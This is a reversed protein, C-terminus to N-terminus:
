SVQKSCRTSDAKKPSSSRAEPSKDIAAGRRGRRPKPSSISIEPSKDAAGRRTKRKPSSSNAESSKDATAGRRGRRPKPSSSNAELSTDAARRRTQQKSSSSRAEPSKEDAAAGRRGRRPKPSSSSVEPSKNAARRRTQQKPKPSISAVDAPSNDAAARRTRKVPSAVESTRAKRTRRQPKVAPSPEEEKEAVAKSRGKRTTKPPPSPSKTEEERTSSKQSTGRANKKKIESEEKKAPRRRNYRTPLEQAESHDESDSSHTQVSRDEQNVTVDESTAKQGKRGRTTKRVPSGRTARTRLPDAEEENSKSIPEEAAKKRGRTARKPAEEESPLSKDKPNSRTSRKSPSADQTKGRAKSTTAEQKAEPTKPAPSKMSQARSSREPSMNELNEKSASTNGEEDDSGCLIVNPELSRRKLSPSPQSGLTGLSLKRNGSPKELEELKKLFLRRKDSSLFKAEPSAFLARLDGEQLMQVSVRPSKLLEKVGILNDYSSKPSKQVHRTSKKHSSRQEPSSLSRRHHDIQGISHRKRRSVDGFGKTSTTLSMRQAPRSRLSKGSENLLPSVLVQLPINPTKVSDFDFFSSNQLGSLSERLSKSLSRGMSLPTVGNAPSNAPTKSSDTVLEDLSVDFSSIRSKTVPTDPSSVLSFKRRLKGPSSLHRSEMLHISSNRSPSAIHKASGRLSRSPTPLTPRGKSSSSPSPIKVPSHSSSRTLNSTPGPTSPTKSPIDPMKSVPIMSSRGRRAPTDDTKKPSSDRRNTSNSPTRSRSRSSSAKPIREQQPTASSSRGRKSAPSKSPSPSQNRSPTEVKNPTKLSGTSSSRKPTKSPRGRKGSSSPTKSPSKRRGKTSDVSLFRVRDFALTKLPSQSSSRALPTKSPRGRKASSAPTKSPSRSSGRRKTSSSSPTKSPRGRGKVSSAPTKVPSHSESRGKKLTSSPTSSSNNRKASSAPTKTPSPSLGGRKSSSFPTKSPRGRKASVPTKLPSLSASRDKKLASSPTSSSRGRKVSPSAPTRVSSSKKATLPTSSHRGRKTSVPIKLPNLSSRRSKKASATLPTKSPEGRKVSPSRSSNRKSKKANATLPTSSPRGRRKASSAPTKVPSHSARRQMKSTSSPIKRIKTSSAPTKIPSLSVSRRMKPTSSPTKLSPRGRKSSSPTQIPSKKTVLSKLPSKTKRASSPTTSKLPSMNTVLSFRKKVIKGTKGAARSTSHSRIVTKQATPRRSSSAASKSRGRPLALKKPSHSVRRTKSVTKKLPTGSNGGSKRRGHIVIDEPSQAHRSRSGIKVLAKRAGSAKKNKKKLVALQKREKEKALQKERAVKTVKPTRGINKKLIDAWSSTVKKASAAKIVKTSLKLPTKSPTKAALKRPTKSPTKIALKRPTKAPTKIALRRPTKAPTKITLKRPTKAITKPTKPLVMRAGRPTKAASVGYFQKAGKTLPRKRDSVPSKDQNLLREESRPSTRSGSSAKAPLTDNPHRILVGIPGSEEDSEPISAISPTAHMRKSNRRHSKASAPTRRPTAVHGSLRAGKKVPTSPPLSTDIYEPRIAPGFSVRKRSESPAEFRFFRDFIRFVDKDELHISRGQPILSAGVTVGGQGLSYLRVRKSDPEVLIRVHQSSVGPIQIRIDCESDRGLICEESILSFVGGDEGSRKIVVLSGYM